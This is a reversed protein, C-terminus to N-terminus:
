SRLKSVYYLMVRGVERRRFQIKNEAPPERRWFVAMLTLLLAAESSGNM